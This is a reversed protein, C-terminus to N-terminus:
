ADKHIRPLSYGFFALYLAVALGFVAIIGAMKWRPMQARELPYHAGQVLQIMPTKKRLNIEALKLNKAVETFMAKRVEVDILARKQDVMIGARVALINRDTEKAMLNISQELLSQLSDFETQLVDVNNRAKKTITEIYYDTVTRILLDSFSTALQPNEHVTAVHIFSMRKEKRGVDLVDKLMYKYTLFVASDILAKDDPSVFDLQHFVRKRAHKTYPFFWAVASKREGAIEIDERLAREIMSRTLFLQVLSEGKFVSSTKVGGEIDIGYQAMIGEIAQTGEEEAAIIYEAVYKEPYFIWLAAYGLAFAVAPFLILLIAHQRLRRLVQQAVLSLYTQLSRLPTDHM